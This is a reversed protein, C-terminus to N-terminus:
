LFGSALFSSNYPSLFPPPCLSIPSSFSLLPSSIIFLPCLSVLLVLFSPLFYYLLFKKSQKGTKETFSQGLCCFFGLLAWMVRHFIYDQKSLCHHLLHSKKPPQLLANRAFMNTKHSLFLSLSAPQHPPNPQLVNSSM